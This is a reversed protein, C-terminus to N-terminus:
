ARPVPAKRVVNGKRHGGNISLKSFIHCLQDGASTTAPPSAKVPPAMVHQPVSPLNKAAAPTFPSPVTPQVRPLPMVANVAPGASINNNNNPRKNKDGNDNDTLDDESDSEETCTKPLSDSTNGAGMPSPPPELPLNTSNTQAAATPLGQPVPPLSTGNIQAAATPLNTGDTLASADPNIVHDDLNTIALAPIARRTPQNGDNRM